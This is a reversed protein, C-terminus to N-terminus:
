AGQGAFFRDMLASHEADTYGGSEISVWGNYGIEDIVKRVSVWDISGQGIPVFDGDNKKERDIKFDKIHMKVIQPGLARLWQETQAYRISNGLDLYAKVQKHGFSRVLAAAFDPQVWLNNWVNELAVVVGAEVAVPILEEVASRTLETARNQVAIYEAFPANDGEVVTKVRLTAPDFDIKFQSPKPLNGGARCPVLLIADAGYAATLRILRKVDEISASRKAEDANNFDAWGGMFSHIRLGHKQATARGQAAQELTVDKNMLELGPFGAKAIRECTADDAVQALLAKRLNTKFASGEAARAPFAGGALLGAGAALRLFGRRNM